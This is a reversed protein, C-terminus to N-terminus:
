GVRSSVDDLQSNGDVPLGLKRRMPMFPSARHDLRVIGDDGKPTDSAIDIREIGKAMKM